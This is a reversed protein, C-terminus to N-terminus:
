GRSRRRAIRQSATVALIREFIRRADDARAGRAYAIGLGNLADIDPTSRKSEPELLRVAELASVLEAASAYRDERERAMSRAIVATM